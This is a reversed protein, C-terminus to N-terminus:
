AINSHENKKLEKAILKLMYSYERRKLEAELKDATTYHLRAKMGHGISLFREAKERCAEAALKLEHEDLRM